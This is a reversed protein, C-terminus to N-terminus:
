IESLRAAQALPVESFEDADRPLRDVGDFAPLVIWRQHESELDCVRKVQRHFLNKVGLKSYQETGAAIVRSRQDSCPRSACDAKNRRSLAAEDTRRRCLKMYHRGLAAGM